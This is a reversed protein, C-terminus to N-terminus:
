DMQSVYDGWQKAMAAAIGTYTRAREKARDPKESMRHVRMERGEVIKSHQLLPLEKLWLCTTKLEGHGHQWPQIIQRYPPVTPMALRGYSHMIPNEVAVHKIPAHYLLTFLDAAQQLERFMDKVTRGPPPKNLWRTGSACLRTCPPHAVMLDWGEDLVSLVDEQIHYPSNDESPIIDCSYATHGRERFARRVVGSFECAVLVRV